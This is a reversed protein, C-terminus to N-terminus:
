CRGWGRQHQAECLRAHDRMSSRYRAVVRGLDRTLWAAQKSLRHQTASQQIVRASVDFLFRLARFNSINNFYAVNSLPVFLALSPSTAQAARTTRNATTTM